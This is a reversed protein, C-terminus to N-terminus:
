NVYGSNGYAFEQVLTTFAAGSDSLCSTISAGSSPEQTKNLCTQVAATTAGGFNPIVSTSYTRILLTGATPTADIDSGYVEGSQGDGVANTPNIMSVQVAMSGRGSSSDTSMATQVNCRVMGTPTTPASLAGQKMCAIREFGPAMGLVGNPLIANQATSGTGVAKEVSVIGSDAEQFNLMSAQANTGIALHLMGSRMAILGMTTVVVLIVMTVLLAMGQQRSSRRFTRFTM